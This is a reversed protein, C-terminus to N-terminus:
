SISMINNEIYSCTKVKLSYKFAEEMNKECAGKTGQVNFIYGDYCDPQLRTDQLIWRSSCPLMVTVHRQKVEM